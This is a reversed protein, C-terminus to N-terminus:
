AVRRLPVTAIDALNRVAFAFMVTSWGRLLLAVGLALGLFWLASVPWQAWLMIGLVLTVVGDFLAWGWSRYRVALASAIRFAGIVTCYAAFLLTWAMAGALPHTVILLGLAIGLAGALLHLFVGRSRRARFAGICEIIGSAAIIWGLVLITALTAAPTFALAVCGLIILLIGLVLFWGWDHRLHEFDALLVAASM